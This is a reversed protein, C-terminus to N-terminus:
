AVIDGAVLTADVIGVLSIEAANVPNTDAGDNEFAYVATMASAGTGLTVAIIEDQSATPTFATGADNLFNLVQDVNTYNSTTLDNLALTADSGAKFIEAGNVIDGGPVASDVTTTDSDFVLKDSGSEFGTIVNFGSFTGGAVGADSGDTLAVFQVVDTSSITETLDVTDAGAGVVIGDAGEGGTIVDDDAGTIITDGGDGGDVTDAGAATTIQDDGAGGNVIDTGSAGANLVDAADGGTLVDDGTGTTFTNIMDSGTLTLNATSGTQNVVFSDLTADFTNDFTLGSLDTSVEGTGLIVTITVNGGDNTTMIYSQGDLLSNAVTVGANNAAAADRIAIRDIGSLNMTGSSYDGAGATDIDTLALTDFGTGGTITYTTNNITDAAFTVSNRGAGADLTLSAGTNTITLADNGSGTTVTALTSADILDLTVVGSGTATLSNATIAAGTGDVAGTSNIVLDGTGIDTTGSLTIGNAGAEITVDTNDATGTIGAVASAATDVSADITVSALDTLTLTNALDVANADDVGDNLTITATNTAAGADSGDVGLTTQDVAVM